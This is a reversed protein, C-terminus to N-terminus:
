ANGCLVFCAEEYDDYDGLAVRALVLDGVLEADKCYPIDIKMGAAKEKKQVWESDACQGGTMTMRDPFYEGNEEAAAKLKKVADSFNKLVSEENEFRMKGTEGLLISANWLGPIASPLTRIGDAFIPKQTCLNLGESTGARDCLTGPYITGTGLLAVVFDPAGAFVFTGEFIGTEIAAKETIKGAFSGMKKMPPFKEIESESFGCKKLEDTTWYAAIFREEPLITIANGTLEHILFEPGSFIKKSSDWTKKYKNKFASFRPIYISKTEKERKNKEAEDTEENWLLTTGDEAVITPGNGSVCIAEVAADENQAKMESIAKKLALMWKKATMNRSESDSEIESLTIRKIAEVKRKDSILAAKLSTTGIDICLITDTM